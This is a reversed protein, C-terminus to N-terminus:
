INGGDMMDKVFKFGDAWFDLQETTLKDIESPQFKYM